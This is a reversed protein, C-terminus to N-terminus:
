LRASDEHVKRELEAAKCYRERDKLLEDRTVQLNTMETEIYEKVISNKAREKLLMYEFYLLNESKLHMENDLNKSFHRNEERQLFIGFSSDASQTKKDEPTMKYDKFRQMLKADSELCNLPWVLQGKIQQNLQERKYSFEIRQEEILRERIEM